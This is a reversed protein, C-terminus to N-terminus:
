RRLFDPSLLLLVLAEAPSPAREVGQRVSPSVDRGLLATALEGVEWDASAVRQALAHAWEMRKWVGDPSAWFSEEDPWGDPGPPRYLMQGMERLAGLFPRRDGQAASPPSLGRLVSVLYEFPQKFKHRPREWAEPLHVLA